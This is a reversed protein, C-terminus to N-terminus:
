SHQTAISYIDDRVNKYDSFWNYKERHWKRLNKKRGFFKVYTCLPIFDNHGIGDVVVPTFTNDQARKLGVNESILDRFIINENVLYEILEGLKEVAVKNIAPNDQALYYGLTKSVSGDYDQVLDFVVGTGESTEVVEHLQAIMEWSIGRSKLVSFYDIERTQSKKPSSAHLVKVCLSADTPHYYCKRNSGSSILQSDSLQLIKAM